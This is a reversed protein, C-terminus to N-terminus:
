LCYCEDIVDSCMYSMNRVTSVDIVVQLKRIYQVETHVLEWIAEQQDKQKKTLETPAIAVVKSWHAEIDFLASDYQVTGMVLLDPMPPLGTTSYSELQQLMYEHKEQQGQSVGIVYVHLCVTTVYVYYETFM